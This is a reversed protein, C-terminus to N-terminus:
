GLSSLQLVIKGRKHRAGALMEHAQRAETLPLVSGVQARLKGAEFLESLVNLRITTVEALFFTARGPHRQVLDEPKIQVVTILRAEPKLVLLSRDRTEGGVMDIVADVPNLGHEFREEKYDILQDAGLDHLYDFDKASATAVVKIGANKALQVAYAGVNGAAGHILATQGPQLHAHEFLMQYATVAVVPASAAELLNLKAPKRSLMKAKAVAFEAYAGTFDENTVGYVEDGPKLGEVGSGVSEVVGSLDSGLVLPLQLATVGTNSRILADWPAVGAANTQILVEDAAPAPKPLDVIEIVNPPGFSKIQAARM